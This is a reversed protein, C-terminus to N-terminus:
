QRISTTRMVKLVCTCLFDDQLIFHNLNVPRASCRWTEFNAGLCRLMVSQKIVKSVLVTIKKSPITQERCSKTIENLCYRLETMDSYYHAVVKKATLDQKKAKKLGSIRSNNVV